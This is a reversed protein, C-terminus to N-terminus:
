VFTTKLVMTNPYMSTPECPPILSIFYFKAFNECSQGGNHSKKRGTFTAM